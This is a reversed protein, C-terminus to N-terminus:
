LTGLYLALLGVLMDAKLLKSLRGLNTKSSDSWASFLTYILVTDVGVFVTFFYILGYDGFLFPLFTFAILIVFSITMAALARKEGYALPLTSAGSAEDGAADEMDKIIERGLHFFFAFGAPILAEKIRGVAAGGYIFALASIFAVVLNGVLPMRKYAASYRYTGYSATLAILIGARGLPISLSIGAAYLIVAYILAGSRTVEGSPIPREPRNVRDIDYDYYDNIANAAGTIFMGSAIAYLLTQLPELIGTLLAGVFISVGGILVNLPRALKIYGTM